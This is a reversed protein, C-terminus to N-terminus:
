FIASASCGNNETSVYSGYLVPSDCVCVRAREYVRSFCDPGSVLVNFWELVNQRKM